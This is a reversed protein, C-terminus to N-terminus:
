GVSSFTGVVSIICYHFSFTLFKKIKRSMFYLGGM